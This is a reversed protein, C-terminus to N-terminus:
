EDFQVQQDTTLLVSSRIIDDKDFNIPMLDEEDITLLNVTEINDGDDVNVDLQVQEAEFKLLKQAPYLGAKTAQFWNLGLLIDYQDLDMILLQLHSIHNEFNICLLPTIGIVTDVSNNASKIQVTSSLIPIKYKKIIKHSIISTTAGSDFYCDVPMDDISGKIKLMELDTHM